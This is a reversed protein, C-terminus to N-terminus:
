SLMQWVASFNSHGWTFLELFGSAPAILTHWPWSSGTVQWGTLPTMRRLRSNYPHTDVICLRKPIRIEVL